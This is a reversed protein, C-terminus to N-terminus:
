HKGGIDGSNADWLKCIIHASHFKKPSRWDVERRLYKMDCKNFLKNRSHSTQAGKNNWTKKSNFLEGNFAASFDFKTAM